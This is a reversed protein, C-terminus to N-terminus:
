EMPDLDLISVRTALTNPGASASVSSPSSTFSSANSVSSLGSAVSISKRKTAVSSASTSSPSSSPLANSAPAPGTAHTFLLDEKSPLEVSWNVDFVTSLYSHLSQPLEASKPRPLPPAPDHATTSKNTPAMSASSSSSQSPMIPASFPASHKSKTGSLATDPAFNESVLDGEDKDSLGAASLTREMWGNQEDERLLMSEEDPTGPELELDDDDYTQRMQMQMQAWDVPPHLQYLLTLFNKVVIRRHISLSRNSFMDNNLKLNSLAMLQQPTLTLQPPLASSAGPPSELANWGTSNDYGSSDAKPSHDDNDDDDDGDDDDHDYDHDNHHDYDNDLQSIDAFFSGAPATPISAASVPPTPPLAALTSAPAALALLHGRDM